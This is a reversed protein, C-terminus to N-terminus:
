EDDEPTESIAWSADGEDDIALLYSGAEAPVPPVNCQPLGDFLATLAELQEQNFATAILELASKRHVEDPSLTNDRGTPVTTGIAM